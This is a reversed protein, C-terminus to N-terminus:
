GNWFIFPTTPLLRLGELDYDLFSLIKFISNLYDRYWIQFDNKSRSAPLDCTFIANFPDVTSKQENWDIFLDTDIAKIEICFFASPYVQCKKFSIILNLYYQGNWNASFKIGSAIESGGGWVCVGVCARARKRLCTHFCTGTYYLEFHWSFLAMLTVIHKPRVTKMEKSIISHKWKLSVDHNIYDREQNVTKSTAYLSTM